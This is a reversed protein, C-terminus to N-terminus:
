GDGSAALLASATVADTVLENFYGAEAAALISPVKAAGAALAISTPIERLRELSTAMLRECGPFLVPRGERDYFRSCIDGVAGRLKGGAEGVFRPLTTRTTLPAGVGLIVCRATSWLDLVRRTSPDDLLTEYLEPGPLAPAYLFTPTGGVREALRRTIENTAYWAEPEDQGGVTPAVVVGSLAPLHTRSAEWITRGSSVLLADGPALRAARLADSLAPALAEGLTGVGPPAVRVSRLGLAVQVQAGLGESEEEVPAVVEIRVIGRRRADSLLRSVASRSIGLRSAVEAQTADELYYLRAATHMLAQPSRSGPPSSVGDDQRTAGAAAVGKFMQRSM